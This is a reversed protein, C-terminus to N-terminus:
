AAIERLHEGQVELPVCREDCPDISNLESFLPRRPRQVVGSGLVGGAPPM